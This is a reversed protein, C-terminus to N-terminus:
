IRCMVLKGESVDEAAATWVGGMTKYKEFMAELREIQEEHSWYQAPGDKDAKKKLFAESIDKAVPATM